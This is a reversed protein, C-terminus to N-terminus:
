ILEIYKDSDDSLHNDDRKNEVDSPPKKVSALTDFLGKKFTSLPEGLFEKKEAAFSRCLQHVICAGCLSAFFCAVASVSLSIVLVWTPSPTVEVVQNSFDEVVGGLIWGLIYLGALGIVPVGICCIAVCTVATIINNICTLVM